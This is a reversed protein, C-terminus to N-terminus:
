SIQWVSKFSDSSVMTWRTWLSMSSIEGHLQIGASWSRVQVPACDTIQGQTCPELSEGKSTSRSLEGSHGPRVSHCLARYHTLWEEWNQILLSASPVSPRKKWAMSSHGTCTKHPQFWRYGQMSNITNNSVNTHLFIIYCGLSFYDKRGSVFCKRQCNRISFIGEWHLKQWNVQIKSIQFIHITYVFHKKEPVMLM